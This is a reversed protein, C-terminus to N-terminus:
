LGSSTTDLPSDDKIVTLDNATTSPTGANAVTTAGQLTIGKTITLVSNWSVTGAPVSVIDGEKALAIATAVDALAPSRANIAAGDLQHPATTLLAGAIVVLAKCCLGPSRTLHSRFVHMSSSNGYEGIAISMGCAPIKYMNVIVAKTLKAGM